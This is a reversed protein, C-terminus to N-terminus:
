AMRRRVVLTLGIAFGRLLMVPITIQASTAIWSQFRSSSSEPLLRGCHTRIPVSQVGTLFENSDSRSIHRDAPLQTTTGRFLM